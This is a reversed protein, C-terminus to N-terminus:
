QTGRNLVCLLNRRLDRRVGVGNLRRKAMARHRRTPAAAICARPPLSALLREYAPPPPSRFMRMVVENKISDMLTSFMSFAEKKYEVLPDNQGYARLGVGQRLNDMGRLYEQWLTDISHLLIFREMMPLANPDEVEIKMEYAQRVREYVARAAQEANTIDKLEEPRLGLSPATPGSRLVLPVNRERRITISYKM